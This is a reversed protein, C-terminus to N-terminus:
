KFIQEVVELAKEKTAPFAAIKMKIHYCNGSDTVWYQRDILKGKDLRIFFHLEDDLRSEKQKVLLEKQESSLNGILNELFDNVLSDKDIVIECMKITREQFGQAVTENMNVKKEELDFPFLKILTSKLLEYDEEPKAFVSVAINHCLKM